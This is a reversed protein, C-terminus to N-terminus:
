SANQEVELWSTHHGLEGITPGRFSGSEFCRIHPDYYEAGDVLFRDSYPNFRVLQIDWATLHAMAGGYSVLGEWDKLIEQFYSPKRRPAARKPVLYDAFIYFQEHKDDFYVARPRLHEQTGVKVEDLKKLAREVLELSPFSSSIRTSLYVFRDKYHAAWRAPTGMNFVQWPKGAMSKPFFQHALPFARPETLRKELEVSDWCATVVSNDPRGATDNLKSILGSSPRTSCVLLYGDADHQRCDAVFDGVEKRGVAKGSHAKHKCQVLWRRRFSGLPGTATEEALVDTGADTGEGTWSARLGSVLLLERVLQELATGDKPLECFDLPM